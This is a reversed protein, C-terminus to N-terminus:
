ISQPGTYYFAWHGMGGKKFNNKDRRQRGFQMIYDRFALHAVAYIRLIFYCSTQKDPQRDTHRYRLIENDVSGIHNEKVPYSRM